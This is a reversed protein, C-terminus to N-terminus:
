HFLRLAIPNQWINGGKAANAAIVSLFVNVALLGYNIALLIGLGMGGGTIYGGVSLFFSLISIFFYTLQFNLANSANKKVFHSRDSSTAFFAVTALLGLISNICSLLGLLHGVMSRTRDSQSSDPKEPLNIDLLDM